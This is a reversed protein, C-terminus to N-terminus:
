CASRRSCFYRATNSNRSNRMPPSLRAVFVLAGGSGILTLIKLFRAYDDVVFSGGFMVTAPGRPLWLLAAAALALRIVCWGNVVASSREGIAAGVMLMLM